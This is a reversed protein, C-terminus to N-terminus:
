EGIAEAVGDIAEAVTVSFVGAEGNEFATRWLQHGEQYDPLEASENEIQEVCEALADEMFPMHAIYTTKGGPANANEIEINSIHIHIINGYEPDDDLRVITIRSNLEGARTKYTWVQGVSFNTIM